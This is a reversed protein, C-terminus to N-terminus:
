RRLFTRAGRVLADAYRRQGAASAMSAADGRNRMNGLEVMVAPPAAWNLTGLDDRFSLASGGGVYSSRAFGARQLAARTDVAYATSRSRLRRPEGSRDSVIVHFGHDGAASGDGHISLLLDAGRSLRGREDVCPGWRRSSNTSRTLVVRAGLRQLRERADLAVRWTFTAEPYGADTSTGASNCPKRLGRADVLRGTERPHSGNGLQHGPDLVVVRGALPRAAPRSPPAGTQGALQAALLSVAVAATALSM